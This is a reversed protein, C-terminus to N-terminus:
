QERITVCIIKLLARIFIKIFLDALNTWCLNMRCKLSKGFYKRLFNERFDKKLSVNTLQMNTGKVCEPYRIFHLVNTKYFCTKIEGIDQAQM